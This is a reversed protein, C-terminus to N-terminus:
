PVMPGDAAWMSRVQRPGDNSPARVDAAMDALAGAFQDRWYAAMESDDESEYCRQLAYYVLVRQYDDPLDPEDLDAVMLAPLRWYRLGLNYASDPTPYVIVVTGYIAYGAPKGSVALHEDIDRISLRRLMVADDKNRLSRLKGLDTPWPYSATGAVTVIAQETEESYHRVKRAVIRLADNLYGNVRGLYTNQAFGHGLVETRLQVLTSM